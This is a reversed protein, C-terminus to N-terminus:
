SSAVHQGHNVFCDRVMLVDSRVHEGSGLVQYSGTAIVHSNKRAIPQARCVGGGVRMDSFGSPRLGFPGSSALRLRASGVVYVSRGTDASTSISNRLLLDFCFCFTSCAFAKSEDLSNEGRKSGFIRSRLIAKAFLFHSQMSASRLCLQWRESAEQRCSFGETLM